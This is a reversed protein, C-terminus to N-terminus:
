DDILYMQGFKLLDSVSVFLLFIVFIISRPPHSLLVEVVGVRNLLLM